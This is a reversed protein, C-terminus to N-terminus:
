AEKTIHKWTKRTVIHSINSQSVGFRIAIEDQFVGDAYLSVIELVQSGTLKASASAEGRRPRETALRRLLDHTGDHAGHCRRCRPEYDETRISFVQGKHWGGASVRLFEEPANKKLSWDKALRGCDVCRGRTRALRHHAGEYGVADGRWGPHAAGRQSLNKGRSVALCARKPPPCYSYGRKRAVFRASSNTLVVPDGCIVCTSPYGLTKRGMLAASIKARTEASRKM